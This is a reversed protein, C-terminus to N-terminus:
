LNRYKSVQEKEEWERSKQQFGRRTAEMQLKIREKTDKWTPLPVFIMPPQEQQAKLAAERMKNNKKISLQLFYFDDSFPDSTQLPQVVKGVIFRYFSIVFFDMQYLILM